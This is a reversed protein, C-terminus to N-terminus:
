TLYNFNYKGNFVAMKIAPGKPESDHEMEYKKKEEKSFEETFMCIM